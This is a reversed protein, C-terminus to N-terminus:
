DPPPHILGCIGTLRHLVIPQHGFDALGPGRDGLGQCRAQWPCIQSLFRLQEELIFWASSDLLRDEGHSNRLISGKVLRLDM